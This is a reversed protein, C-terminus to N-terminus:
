KVGRLVDAFYFCVVAVAAGIVGFLFIVELAGIFTKIAYILGYGILFFGLATRHSGLKERFFASFYKWFVIAVIFGIVVTGAATVGIRELVSEGCQARLIAMQTSAAWVPCGISAAFGVFTLIFAFVKSKM